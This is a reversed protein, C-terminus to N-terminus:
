IKKSPRTSSQVLCMQDQAKKAPLCNIVAEIEKPSIPSNLDSVQDQNLKRVQYRELFNDMKDLYKLKASYLSEYYSRIINQIEEPETTIDGKENKIKTILISDRYRRTLRTLPKDIKNIKEFFGSKTQNIRQITRKTEV